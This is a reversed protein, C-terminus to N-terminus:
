SFELRWSPPVRAGIPLGGMVAAQWALWIPIGAGLFFSLKEDLSSSKESFRVLTLGYVNDAQLYSVFFRWRLPLHAFHLRLSASYMMFRLNIFPTALTFVLAPTGRWLSHPSPALRAGGLAFVWLAM